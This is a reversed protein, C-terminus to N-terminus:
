GPKHVAASFSRWPRVLDYLRFFVLNFLMYVAALGIDAVLAVPWSLGTMAVIIPVSALMLAMERSVAHWLRLRTPRLDARRGCRRFELTDFAWDHLCGTLMEVFTLVLIVWFGESLSQGFAWSYLPIAAIFACIEYSCVQLIRERAPRLYM